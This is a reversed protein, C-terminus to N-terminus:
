KVNVAPTIAEVRTMLVKLTDAAGGMIVYKYTLLDVPNIDKAQMVEINGFNRFSKEIAEDRTALVMLAALVM